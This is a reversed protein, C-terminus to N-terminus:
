LFYKIEEGEIASLLNNALSSAGIRFLETTLWEEGLIEKVITYYLAADEATRIGGAAKFGLLAHLVTGVAADVLKDELVIEGKGVLRSSKGEAVGVALNMEALKVAIVGDLLVLTSVVVIIIGIEEGHVVVGVCLIFDLREPFGVELIKLAASQSVLVVGLCKHSVPLQLVLCVEGVCSFVHFVELVDYVFYVLRICLSFVM